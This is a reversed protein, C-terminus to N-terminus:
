GRGGASVLARMSRRGSPLFTLVVLAVATVPLALHGLLVGLEGSGPVGPPVYYAVLLASAVM